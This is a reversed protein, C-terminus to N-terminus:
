SDASRGVGIAVRDLVGNVFAASEATGFQKALEVAENIVVRVPTELFATLECTALRLINRDVRAMREIRWNKSAAVIFGDIAVANAAAALVLTEAFNRSEHEIPTLEAAFEDAYSAVQARADRTDDIDRAYLVQLAYARGKHRHGSSSM